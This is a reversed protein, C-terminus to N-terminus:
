QFCGHVLQKFADARHSMAHKKEPAMEAFTLSHGHPTFIPDYGFGKNGRLPLALTGEVKGEFTEVHGDPWALALVCVFQASKDTFPDLEAMLREMGYTFDRQGNRTAYRASYVGPRGGLATVSLGSDDALAPLGTIRATHLAKLKANGIYTEETEEPEPVNHDAASSISLGFPALLDAIEPIKGRNHSAIVLQPATFTRM